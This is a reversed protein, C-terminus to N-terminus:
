KQAAPGSPLTAEEEEDKKKQLEAAEEESAEFAERKAMAPTAPKKEKQTLSWLAQKVLTECEELNTGSPKLLEKGTGHVMVETYAHM